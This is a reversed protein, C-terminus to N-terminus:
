HWRGTRKCINDTKFFLHDSRKTYKRGCKCFNVLRRHRGCIIDPSHSGPLTLPAPNPNMGGGWIKSSWNVRGWGLCLTKIQSRRQQHSKDTSFNSSEFWLHYYSMRITTELAFNRFFNFPGVLNVISPGLKTCNKFKMMHCVHDIISFNWLIPDRKLMDPEAM